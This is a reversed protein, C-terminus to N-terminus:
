YMTNTVTTHVYLIYLCYDVNCTGPVLTVTGTRAYTCPYTTTTTSYQVTTDYTRLIYTTPTM